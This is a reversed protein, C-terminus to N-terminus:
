GKPARWTLELNRLALGSKNEKWSGRHCWPPVPFPSLTETRTFHQQLLTNKEILNNLPSPHIPQPVTLDKWILTRHGDDILAALKTHLYNHALRINQKTIDRIGGYLELCPLPPQKMMGTSLQVAQFLRGTLKKRVTNRNKNTYWIISGHLIKTMMVGVILIRAERQCLGFTPQIIQTLQKITNNTKTKVMRLHLNPSLTPNLTIGLWKVEKQLTYAAHAITLKNLPQRKRTFIM